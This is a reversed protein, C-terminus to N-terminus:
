HDKQLFVREVSWVGCEFLWGSVASHKFTSMNHMKRSKRQWALTTSSTKMGIIIIIIIIIKDELTLFHLSHLM